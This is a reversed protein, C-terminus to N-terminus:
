TMSVHHFTTMGESDLLLCAVSWHYNQCALRPANKEEFNVTNIDVGHEILHCVLCLRGMSGATFLAKNENRQRSKVKAFHPM